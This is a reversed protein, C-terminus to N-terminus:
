KKAKAQEQAGCKCGETYEYPFPANKYDDPFCISMAVKSATPSVAPIAISQKAVVTSDGKEDDWIPPNFKAKYLLKGGSKCKLEVTKEFLAPKAKNKKVLVVTTKDKVLSSKVTVIVNYNEWCSAKQLKVACMLAQSQISFLVAVVLLSFRKM